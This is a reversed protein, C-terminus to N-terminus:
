KTQSLDNLNNYKGFKLSWMLNCYIYEIKLFCVVSKFSITAYSAYMNRSPPESQSIGHGLDANVLGLDRHAVRLRM